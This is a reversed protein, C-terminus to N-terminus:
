TAYVITMNGIAAARNLSQAPSSTGNSTVINQDTDRGTLMSKLDEHSLKMLSVTNRRDPIILTVKNVVVRLM